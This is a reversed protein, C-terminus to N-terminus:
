LSLQPNLEAVAIDVQRFSFHDHHRPSDLVPGRGRRFDRDKEELGLGSQVGPVRDIVAGHM